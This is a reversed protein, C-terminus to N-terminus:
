LELHSSPVRLRAIRSPDSRDSGQKESASAPDRYDLVPGCGAPAM